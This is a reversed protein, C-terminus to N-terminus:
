KGEVLPRAEDVLMVPLDDRIPYALACARCVIEDDAARIEVAGKCRPCALIAELTPHLTAM